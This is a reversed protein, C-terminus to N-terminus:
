HEHRVAKSVIKALMSVAPCSGCVEENAIDYLECKECTSIAAESIVSWSPVNGSLELMSWGPPKREQDFKIKIYQSALAISPTKEIKRASLARVLRRCAEKCGKITLKRAALSKALEIRMSQDEIKLFERALSTDSHLKGAAILEQIETDLRTLVVRNRLWSETKGVKKAAQPFTYGFDDILRRYAHAEDVPNLDDRQINAVLTRLLREEAGKGNLGPVVIAPIFELGAMTSAICRREGEHLIYFDGVQEVEIPQIVGHEAISASLEILKEQDFRKRPQEPNRKILEIPVNQLDSM